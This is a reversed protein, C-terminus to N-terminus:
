MDQMCPRDPIFECPLGLAKFYEAMKICAYKETSYHTGGIINISNERAKEHARVAPEYGTTASTIGTIFTNIGEARLMGYVEKINGGGAILAAKNDTIKEDGYGYLVVAHGFAKELKAKLEKVSVCETVGIVGVHGGSYEYFDDTKEIGCAGALNVTTSYQGNKDLATHLNYISIRGDKLRQLLSKPISLFPKPKTIDWDM